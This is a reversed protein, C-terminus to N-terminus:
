RCRVTEYDGVKKNGAIKAQMGVQYWGANPVDFTTSTGAVAKQLGRHGRNKTENAWIDPKLTEPTKSWTVSIVWGSGSSACSVSDFALSPKPKPATPTTQGTIWDSVGHTNFAAVRVDYASGNSLGTITHSTALDSGHDLDESGAAADGWTQTTLKWQVRYGFGAAPATASATWSVAIQKDGASLSLGSAPDPASGKPEPKAAITCNAAEAKKLEAVVPDWRSSSYTDAHGQAQASTMASIGPFDEVCLGELASNWRDVHDQGHHTEAAYGRVDSVLDAPATYGPAAPTAAATIWDSFRDANFAAVRVDYASGGALGTITYSTALDSGHDLDESQVAAGDWAGASPKWQVRYGFGAAPTTASASWSVAIQGAGASASLGSVPGPPSNSNDISTPDNVELWQRINWCAASVLGSMAAGTILAPVAAVGTALLVASVAVGTAWQTAQNRCIGRTGAEVAARLAQEFGDIVAARLTGKIDSVKEVVIKGNEIVYEVGGIVTKGANVAYRVGALVFGTINLRNNPPIAQYCNPNDDLAKWIPDWIVYAGPPYKLDNESLPYLKMIEETNLYFFADQPLPQEFTNAPCDNSITPCTKSQHNHSDTGTHTTWSVTQGANGTGCVPEAPHNDHCTNTTEHPHQGVGPTCHDEHKSVARYKTTTGTKQWVQETGTKEWVQRTGTRKYVQKTGTKEWVRETGTKMWVQEVGDPVERTEPRYNYVARTRTEGPPCYTVATDLIVILECPPYYTYTETFPAVRAQVTITKYQPVPVYGYVDKTVWGYVDETVWGYVDKTVWGYVNQTVWGYVDEEYPEQVDEPPHAQAAAPLLAATLCLAVFLVVSRRFM